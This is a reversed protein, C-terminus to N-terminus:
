EISAYKEITKDKFTQCLSMISQVYNRAESLNKSKLWNGQLKQVEKKVRAAGSNYSALIIENINVKNFRALLNRNEPLNWYELLFQLYYIGGKISYEANLRWDDNEDILGSFIYLKLKPYSLRKVKPNMPWYSTKEEIEKAALPTIQTLGLAMSWSIAKPNFSSEQAILAALLAPNIGSKEALNLLKQVLRDEPAYKKIEFDKEIENFSCVPRNLKKKAVINGYQNTVLFEIDHLKRSSLLFNELTLQTKLHDNSINAKSFHDIPYLHGQYNIWFEHKGKANKYYTIKQQYKENLLQYDPSMLIADNANAPMRGHKNIGNNSKFSFLNFSGFPSVPGACSICLFLSCLSLLRMTWGM